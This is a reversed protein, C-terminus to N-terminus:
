PNVQEPGTTARSIVSEHRTSRGGKNRLKAHRPNEANRKSVEVRPRKIDRLDSARKPKTENTKFKTLTPLKMDALLGPHKPEGVNDKPVMRMSKTIARETKSKRCKSEESKELLRPLSPNMTKAKSVDHKSKSREM